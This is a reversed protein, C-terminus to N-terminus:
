GPARIGFIRNRGALVLQSLKIMKSKYKFEYIVVYYLCFLAHTKKKKKKKCRLTIVDFMSMSTIYINTYIYIHEDCFIYILDPYLSESTVPRTWM